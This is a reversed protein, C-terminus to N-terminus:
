GAALSPIFGPFERLSWERGPKLRTQPSILKGKETWPLKVPFKEPVAGCKKCRLQPLSCEIETRHGLTDPYTWVQPQDHGNIELPGGCKDCTLGKLFSDSEHIEIRLVDTNTNLVVKEVEM